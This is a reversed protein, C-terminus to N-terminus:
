LVPLNKAVERLDQEVRYRSIKGAATLEALSARGKGTLVLIGQAGVADALQVDCDKDGVVFSKQLDIAKGGFSKVILGPKPKRCICDDEPRHLCYGFEAIEVREAKLLECCREHVAKFESDKIIGRGVGSQNSVVFLLYGKESMMRMGEAANATFTVREPDRPYHQDEIITGDRDLFVAAIKQSM